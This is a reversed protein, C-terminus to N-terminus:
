MIFLRSLNIKKKNQLTKIIESAQYTTWNKNNIIFEKNIEAYHSIADEVYNFKAKRALFCIFYHQKDTGIKGSLNVDSAYKGIKQTSKKKKRKNKIYKSDLTDKYVKKIKNQKEWNLKGM